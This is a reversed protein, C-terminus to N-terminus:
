CVKYSDKSSICVYAVRGEEELFKAIEEYRKLAQSGHLDIMEICTVEPFYAAFESKECRLWVNLCLRDTEM